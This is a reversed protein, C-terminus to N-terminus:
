LTRDPRLTGKIYRHITGKEDLLLEGFQGIGAFIGKVEKVQIRQNDARSTYFKVRQNHFALNHLLEDHLRKQVEEQQEEGEFAQLWLQWNEQLQRSIEAWFQVLHKPHKDQGEALPKWGLCGAPINPLYSSSCFNEIQPPLSINLGVGLMLVGQREEILIGGVKSPLDQQEDTFILDNPWKIKLPYGWQQLTQCISNAVLLPLLGKLRSGQVKSFRSSDIHLRQSVYLNGLPSKWSRGHQGRGRNQELAMLWDWTHIAGTKALALLSDFTSESTLCLYAKETNPYPVEYVPQEEGEKGKSSQALTQSFLLEWVPLGQIKQKLESTDGLVQLLM